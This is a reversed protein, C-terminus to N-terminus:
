KFLRRARKLDSPNDIEVWKGCVEIPYIIMRSIDFGEEYYAEKENIFFTMRFIMRAYSTGFKFINLSEANPHKVEKGIACIRQDTCIVGVDPKTSYDIIACDDHSEKAISEFIEKEIVMDGDILYFGDSAYKRALWLSYYTETTAYEPNEIYVLKKLHTTKAKVEEAKYGLVLVITDVYPDLIEYLREIVTKGNIDILCKPLNLGLRSGDGAALIVATRTDSM